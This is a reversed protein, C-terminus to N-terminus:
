LKNFARIRASTTLHMYLQRTLWEVLAEPAKDAARVTNGEATVDPMSLMAKYDKIELSSPSAENFIGRAYERLPHANRGPAAVELGLEGRALTFEPEGRPSADRSSPSPVRTRKRSGTSMIAMLGGQGAQRKLAQVDVEGDMEGTIIERLDANM